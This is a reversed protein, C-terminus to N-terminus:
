LTMFKPFRGDSSTHSMFGMVNVVKNLVRTIMEEDRDGKTIYDFAGFKLANIPTQKTEDGSIVVIYIDPNFRKVKKLTELGDMEGMTHDLLVIDPRLALNNVCEQGSDFLHIDYFGMNKLYQAYLERCFTDDDVIFVKSDKKLNM